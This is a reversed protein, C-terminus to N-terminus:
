LDAEKAWRLVTSKTSAVDTVVGHHGAFERFLGPLAPIPATLVVLDAEHVDGPQILGTDLAHQETAPDLDRGVREWGPRRERLALALSGGILGLGVIGVRM